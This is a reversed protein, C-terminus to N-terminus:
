YKKRLPLIKKLEEVNEEYREIIINVNKESSFDELGSFMKKALGVIKEYEKVEFNKKLSESKNLSKSKINDNKNKNLVFHINEKIKSAIFDIKENPNFFLMIDSNYYPFSHGGKFFSNDYPTRVDTNYVVIKKNMFKAYMLEVVVGEDIPEDLNALVVNSNYTFFGIDLLYILISVAIESEEFSFKKRFKEFLSSFEFGDRQPLFVKFDEELVEVIKKNFYQERSNFLASAFYVTKKDMCNKKEM